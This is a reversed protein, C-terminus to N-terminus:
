NSLRYYPLELASTFGLRKALMYSGRNELRCAWVPELNRELCYDILSSCVKEALGRGRFEPLTEIGLELKGSAVFSSFATAALQDDYYLSFSVGKKMFDQSSNWFASPVVSGHMQDYIERTTKRIRIKPEDNVTLRTELYTNRNFVFNVRTNLEVVSQTVGTTNDNALILKNGLLDTVVGNWGSPFVQVWEHQTRTRATNLAYEKFTSNFKTNIFDGGLLSMGYRHVIYFTRPDDVEDVYARGSVSREIVARAFLHNFTVEDLHKSLRHFHEPSLEIM